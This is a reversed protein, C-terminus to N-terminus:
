VQRILLPAVQLPESLEAVLTRCVHRGLVQRMVGYGHCVLDCGLAVITASPSEGNVCQAPFVVAADLLVRRCIEDVHGHPVKAEADRSCGNLLAEADQLAQKPLLTQV